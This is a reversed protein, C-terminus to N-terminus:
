TDNHCGDFLFVGIDDDLVVTMCTGTERHCRHEFYGFGAAVHQVYRHFRETPTLNMRIHNSNLCHEFIGTEEHLINIHLGIHLCATQRLLEDIVEQAVPYVRLVRQHRRQENTATQRTTHHPREHRVEFAHM